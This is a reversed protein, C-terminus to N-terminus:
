VCVCVCMTCAWLSPRLAVWPLRIRYNYVFSSPACVRGSNPFSHSPFIQSLTHSLTPFLLLSLPLPLDLSISGCFSLSLTFQSVSYSLSLIFRSFSLPSLNFCFLFLMGGLNIICKHRLTGLLETEKIFDTLIRQNKELEAQSDAASSWKLKKVAVDDGTSLILTPSPTHSLLLSLSIQTNLLTLSLSLSLTTLKSPVQTRKDSHTHSRSNRHQLHMLPAYTPMHIHYLVILINTHILASMQSISHSHSLGKYKGKFM